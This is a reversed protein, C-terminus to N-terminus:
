AVAPQPRTPFAGPYEEEPIHEILLSRPYNLRSLRVLYTEYDLIGKGPAVETIYASM